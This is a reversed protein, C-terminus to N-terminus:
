PPLSTWEETSILQLALVDLSFGAKSRDNKRNPGM